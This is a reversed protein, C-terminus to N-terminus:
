VLIDEGESGQRGAVDLGYSLVYFELQKHEVFHMDTLLSCPNPIEMKNIYRKHSSCCSYTFFAWTFSLHYSSPYTAVTFLWLHFLQLFHTYGFLM